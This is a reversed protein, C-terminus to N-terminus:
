YEDEILEIDMSYLLSMAEPLSFKAGRIQNQSPDIQYNRAYRFDTGTLDTKQFLSDTLDTFAFDAQPLKAGRFDVNVAQCRKIKASALDVNLFTCHNLACKKFELPGWLKREPWHAQAWNIGIIKSNEFRIGLFASDTIQALSLDCNKFQCNVFRCNQIKAETFNCNEFLCENFTSSLLQAQTLALGQFVEGTYDTHPQIM